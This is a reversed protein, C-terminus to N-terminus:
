SLGWERKLEELQHETVREVPLPETEPPPLSRSGHKKQCELQIRQGRESSFPTYILEWEVLPFFMGYREEHAKSVLPMTRIWGNPFQEEPRRPVAQAHDSCMGWLFTRRSARGLHDYGILEPFATATHDCVGCKGERTKNTNEDTM